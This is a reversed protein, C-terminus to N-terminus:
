FPQVLRWQAETFPCLSIASRRNNAFAFGFIPSSTLKKKSIIATYINHKKVYAM